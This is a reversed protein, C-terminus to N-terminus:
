GLTLSNSTAVPSPTQTAAPPRKVAIAREADTFLPWWERELVVAEIKLDMRDRQHLAAYGDSVGDMRILIQATELGGHESVMRLFRTANYGAESKARKYIDIMAAHFRRELDSAM